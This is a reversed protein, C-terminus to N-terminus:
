PIPQADRTSLSWGLIICGCTVSVFQKTPAFSIALARPTNAAARLSAGSYKFVLSSPVHIYALGSSRFLACVNRRMAAPRSSGLAASANRHCGLLAAKGSDDVSGLDVM